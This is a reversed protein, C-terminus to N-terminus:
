LIFATNLLHKQLRVLHRAALLKQLARVDAQFGSSAMVCKDARCPQSFFTINFVKKKSLYVEKM